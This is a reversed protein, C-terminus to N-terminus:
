RIAVFTMVSVDGCILDDRLLDSTVGWWSVL